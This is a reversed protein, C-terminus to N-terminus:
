LVGPSSLILLRSKVESVTNSTSDHPSGPPPSMPAFSHLIRSEPSPFPYEPCPSCPALGPNFSKFHPKAAKGCVPLAGRPFRFLVPLWQLLGSGVLCCHPVVLISDNPKFTNPSTFRLSSFFRLEGSIEVNRSTSQADTQSRCHIDLPLRSKCSCLISQVFKICM